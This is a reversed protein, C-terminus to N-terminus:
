LGGWNAHSSTMVELPVKLAYAKEMENQIVPTVSELIDDRVEFLLEDHITLLLRVRDTGIKKKKLVGDVRIMALKIIDAALGQIPMNIAAREEEHAIRSNSSVIGPVWRKRGNLNEVYGLQRAGGITKEQWRKIDAFDSFYERIFKESEDRTLGTARSFASPGMGYIVGFNLTKAFDRQKKTVKDIKINFVNAATLAHIDAGNKFAEIMKKDNSVSALVRLEIQSYDCSLLKYGAEAIFVRRVEPPINQLNPNRSSLRGTATGTQIFATHVRGNKDAWKILPEVYTSKTKFVERYELILPVVPHADKISALSEIDTSPSGSKTRSIRESAIGLGDPSPSFLIKSLQSPSNLNLGASLKKGIKKYISRELAASKRTLNESLDKLAATDVKIGIRSMKELIPGLPLEIENFVKELNDERLKKELFKWDDPLEYRKDPDLLWKVIEIRKDSM